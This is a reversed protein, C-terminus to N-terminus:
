SETANEDQEGIQAKKKARYSKILGGIDFPDVLTILFPRKDDWGGREVEEEQGSPNLVTKVSRPLYRGPHWINLVLVNIFQENFLTLTLFLFSFLPLRVMLTAEFVHFYVENRIIPGDIGM